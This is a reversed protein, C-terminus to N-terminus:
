LSASLSLTMWRAVIARTVIRLHSNQCTGHARQSRPCTVEGRQGLKGQFISITILVRQRHECLITSYTFHDCFCHICGDTWGGSLSVGLTAGKDSPAPQWQELLWERERCERHCTPLCGLVWFSLNHTRKPIYKELVLYITRNCLIPNLEWCRCLIVQVMLFNLEKPDSVREPRGPCRSVHSDYLNVCVCVCLYM